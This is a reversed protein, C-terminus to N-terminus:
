KPGQSAPARELAKRFLPWLSEAYGATYHDHDAFISRGDRIYDCRENPCAMQDIWIPVVGPDRALDVMASRVNAMEILYDEHTAFTPHKIRGSFLLERSAIGAVDYGPIPIPSIIIVQKGAQRLGAVLARLREIAYQYREAPLPTLGTYRAGEDRYQGWSEALIVTHARSAVIAAYNARQVDGCAPTMADGLVPACGYAYVLLGTRGGLAKRLAPAYMQAHSDGWLIVDADAAKRTPLNVPCALGNGFLVFSSLPCKWTADSADNLKVVAAPFRRPLGHTAVLVAAVAFLFAGGGASFLWITRDSVSSRRFPREVFRWSLTACVFSLAVAGIAQFPTLPEIAWYRAFALIPWHWLYLSYSILGVFIVPKASLLPSVLHKGGSGAWILAAAGLVPGLAGLGPFPLVLWTTFMPLLIAALGVVGAISRAWWRSLPPIVGTALLSGVLLEWARFPMLYFAPTGNRHAVFWVAAAFSILGLAFIMAAFARGRLPVFRVLLPFFIYFQEEVGLSWTHLLPWVQTEHAFYNAMRWFAINSIFILTAAVTRAATSLDHPLFLVLGAIVVAALMAFLAPLIRRARRQYFRIISTDKMLIGTILYGSIVFFVDVGMFGAPFSVLEAHFLVVAVVAIARLGDIDPRYRIPHPEGSV